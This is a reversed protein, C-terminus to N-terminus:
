LEQLRELDGDIKEEHPYVRAYKVGEFIRIDAAQRHAEDLTEYPGAVKLGEFGSVEYQVEYRM